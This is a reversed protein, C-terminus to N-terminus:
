RISSEQLCVMWMILFSISPSYTFPPGLFHLDQICLACCFRLEFTVWLTRHTSSFTALAWILLCCSTSSGDSLTAVIRSGQFSSNNGQVAIAFHLEFSTNWGGQIHTCSNYNLSEVTALLTCRHGTMSARFSPQLSLFSSPLITGGLRQLQCPRNGTVAAQHLCYFMHSKLFVKNYSIMSTILVQGLSSSGGPAMVSAADDHHYCQCCFNKWQDICQNM